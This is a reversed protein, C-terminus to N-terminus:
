FEDKMMQNYIKMYGQYQGTLSTIRGNEKKVMEIHNEFRIKLLDFMMLLENRSVTIDYNVPYKTLERELGTETKHFKIRSM